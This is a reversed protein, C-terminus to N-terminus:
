VHARGIKGDSRTVQAATLCAGGELDAHIHCLVIEVVAIRDEIWDVDGDAECCLCLAPRVILVVEGLAFCYIRHLETPRALATLRKRPYLVLASAPPDVKM